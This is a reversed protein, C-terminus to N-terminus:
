IQYVYAQRYSFTFFHNKLFYLLRHGSLQYICGVLQTLLPLHSNFTLTMEKGRGLPIENVYSFNFGSKRLYWKAMKFWIKKYAKQYM